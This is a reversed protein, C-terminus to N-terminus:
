RSSVKMPPTLDAVVIDGITFYDLQIGTSVIFLLVLKQDDRSRSLTPTDNIGGLTSGRTFRVHFVKADSYEFGIAEYENGNTDILLFPQDLPAESAAPSSYGIESNLSVDVRVLTQGKAVAYKEVRLKKSQPANKRGIQTKADFISEGDVIENEDSLTLGRRAAQSAVMTGFRLTNRILKSDKTTDFKIAKSKDLKRDGSDGKLIAGNLVVQDRKNPNAYQIPKPMSDVNVRINKAFLAVPKFGQPIVYEFAMASRSKGGVSTIFVGEADFRWRGFKNTESSESIVAVPFVSRTNGDSDEILLRYQANSVVLQGGKKGREKAGPEFEIVYGAIYGTSVSDKNIDIYKQPKDDRSDKLLDSINSTGNENGVIYTSKVKFDDPSIANRGAGDDPSIRTTFGVIELEPYWKGLPEPTSFTGNSLNSYLKATLKDVPIWLSDNKVISGAGKARDTSYWVPQYGFFNTSLRLSGIGIVLIGASIVGTGLGFIAGGAYNVGKANSINNPILKDTILRLILLSVVFPVILSVGWAVSEIFSLFGREPSMSILMVSLREWFAFAIAGAAIVCLLHIMSSFAGRIMWAYAIGLVLLIVILNMIM